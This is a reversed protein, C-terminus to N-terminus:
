LERSGFIVGRPLRWLAIASGGRASGLPHAASTKSAGGAERLDDGRASGFGKALKHPDQGTPAEARFARSARSADGRRLAM